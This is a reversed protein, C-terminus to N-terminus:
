EIEVTIPKSRVSGFWLLEVIKKKHVMMPLNRRTLSDDLWPSVFYVDRDVRYVAEIEYRGPALKYHDSLLVEHTLAEQPALVKVDGSDKFLVLWDRQGGTYGRENGSADRVTLRLVWFEPALKAIVLAPEAATNELTVRVGGPANAIRLRLPANERDGACGRGAASCGAAVTVLLGVLATLSRFLKDPKRTRHGIM